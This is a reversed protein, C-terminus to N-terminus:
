FKIYTIVTIFSFSSFYNLSIVATVNKHLQFSVQYTQFMAWELGCSVVIQLHGAGERGPEEGRGGEGGGVGM